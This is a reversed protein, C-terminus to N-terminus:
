SYLELLARATERLRERLERPQVAEAEPGWELIWREIEELAGLRLTLEAGGDALDRLTQSEHWERERIRDASGRGFRIVVKFNGAGGSHAGLAKAFFAEPSFAEDRRFKTKAVAVDAVRPLAFTRMAGRGVDFAVLYWLNQRNTLHYPRVQRREGAAEGPKRYDFEVELQRVVAQSLRAFVEADSKGIGFQKFSVANAEASPTFSVTERLGATLKAFSTSLQRHFPTGRYAELAKQAILLSFVEGESIQLTPFAGVPETYRYTNRVPDFEVPLGLRDRMFAFDRVLTKRAVELDRGLQTCTFRDGASLRQHIHLMREM